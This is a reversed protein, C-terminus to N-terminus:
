TVYWTWFRQAITIDSTRILRECAHYTNDGETVHLVDYEGFKGVKDVQSQGDLSNLM